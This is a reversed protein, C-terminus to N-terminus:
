AEYNNLVIKKFLKYEQEAIKKVLETKDESNELSQYIPFTAIEILTCQNKWSIMNANSM